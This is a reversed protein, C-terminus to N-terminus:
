GGGPDTLTAGQATIWGIKYLESPTFDSLTAGQATIWGILPLLSIDEKPPTPDLPSPETLHEPHWLDTHKYLTDPSIGYGAIATLRDRTGVPLSDKDLLDAIAESIRLRALQMQLTNWANGSSPDPDNRVIPGNDWDYHFYKPSAEVSRVWEWARRELESQHRCWDYFGPLQRATDVIYRVLSRGELPQDSGDELIHGFIYGRLAIRGLIFNTQGQGTWGVDIDADLDQLFKKAEKTIKYDRREYAKLVQAIAGQDTCNQKGALQWRSVFEERSTYCPHGDADLLYSGAQLPLRHAAYRQEPSTKRNPFVELHGPELIFGASSLLVAIATAIEWTKFATPLPLYLHLGGSYSSTIPVHAVIGLPELAAMIRGIAFPDHNPHYISGDDIDLMAYETMFGFRVGYLQAGQNILRDSLAHKTNTRWEANFGHKAHIYDHRYPFLGLFAVDKEPIFVFDNLPPLNM